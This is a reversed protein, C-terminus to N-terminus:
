KGKFYLTVTSGIRVTTGAPPKEGQVLPPPRHLHQMFPGIGRGLVPHLGANRIADGAAPIPTGRVNPVKAATGVRLVSMAEEKVSRDTVRLDTFLLLAGVVVAALALAM